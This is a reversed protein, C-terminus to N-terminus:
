ASEKRRIDAQENLYDERGMPNVFEGCDLCHADEVEDHECKWNCNTCVGWEFDKHECVDQLRNLMKLVIAEAELDDTAHFYYRDGDIKYPLQLVYEIKKKM